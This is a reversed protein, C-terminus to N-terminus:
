YNWESSITKILFVKSCFIKTTFHTDFYSYIMPKRDVFFFLFLNAYFPKFHAKVKFFYFDPDNYVTTWVSIEALQVWIEMLIQFFVFELFQILGLKFFITDNLPKQYHSLYFPRWFM